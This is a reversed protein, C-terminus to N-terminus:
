ESVVPDRNNLDRIKQLTMRINNVSSQAVAIEDRLTQMEAHVDVLAEGFKPMIISISAAMILIGSLMTLCSIFHGESSLSVLDGIGTQTIASIAWWLTNPVSTFCMPKESDIHTVCDTINKETEYLLASSIVSGIGALFILLAIGSSSKFVAREIVEGM